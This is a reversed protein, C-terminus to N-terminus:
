KSNDEDNNKNDCHKPSQDRQGGDPTQQNLSVEPFISIFGKNLRHLWIIGTRSVM